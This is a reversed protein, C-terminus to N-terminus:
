KSSQDAFFTASKTALINQCNKRAVTSKSAYFIVSLIKKSNCLLKKHGAITIIPHKM